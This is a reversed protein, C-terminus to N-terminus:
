RLPKFVRSYPSLVAEQVMGGPDGPETRWRVESVNPTEVFRMTFEGVKEARGRRGARLVLSSGRHCSFVGGTLRVIDGPEFAGCEGGWLLFHAAATEDAVLALCTAAAAAEAGERAQHHPPPPRPAAKDLVIFTTNVTNTPAPVLDKLKVTRDGPTEAERQAM